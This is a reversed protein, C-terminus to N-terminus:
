YVQRLYRKDLIKNEFNKNLFVKIKLIIKKKYFFLSFVIMIYIYVYKFLIKFVIFLFFLLFVICFLYVMDTFPQNYSDVPTLNTSKQVMIEVIPFMRRMIHSARHKLAELIPDFSEQAKEMAIVCAARMFNVGNHTDGMGAANAIEDETVVPTVMHRVALTFERM